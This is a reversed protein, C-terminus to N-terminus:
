DRGFSEMCYSTSYSLNWIKCLDKRLSKPLIQYRSELSKLILAYTKEIMKHSVLGRGFDSRMVNGDGIVGRHM